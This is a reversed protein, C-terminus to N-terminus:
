KARLDYCVLHYRGPSGEVEADPDATKAEVKVGGPGGPPIQRVYIRGDAYAVGVCEAKQMAGGLVAGFSTRELSLQSMSYGGGVILRGEIALGSAYGTEFRENAALMDAPGKELDFSVGVGKTSNGVKVGGPLHTSEGIARGRHIIVCNYQAGHGFFGPSTWLEQCAQPTIRWATMGYKGELKTRSSMYDGYTVLIDGYLAAPGCGTISPKPVTWCVRGTRAEILSGGLIFYSVGKHVWAAGFDESGVKVGKLTWLVRGSAVDYGTGGLYAVGGVIRVTPAGRGPGYNGGTATLVGAAEATTIVDKGTAWVLEGTRGDLCYLRNRCGVFLVKGDWWACNMHAGGKYGEIPLATGAVKEWIVRGTAQDLCLLIDDATENLPRRAIPNRTFNHYPKDADTIDWNKRGTLRWYSLYVRGDAVIPTCYEGGWFGGLVKDELKEAQKNLKPRPSSCPVQAESIWVRKAKSLDDVLTLGLEPASCNNYPGHVQPWPARSVDYETILKPDAARTPSASAQAGAVVLAAAALGARSAKVNRSANM